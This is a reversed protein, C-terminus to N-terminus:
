EITVFWSGKSLHYYLIRLGGAVSELQTDTLEGSKSLSAVDALTFHYGKSNAFAVLAAHDTGVKKLEACLQANAFVERGFREIENTQTM